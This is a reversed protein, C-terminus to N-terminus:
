NWHEAETPRNARLWKREAETLSDHCLTDERVLRSRDLVAAWEKLKRSRQLDAVKQALQLALTTVFGLRNQRDSVKANRVLWDWDLDAYRMVLWPLGEVVRSDLEAENLAKYLVEAPNARTKRKVHAFGPYGLAALETRLRNSGLQESEWRESLA